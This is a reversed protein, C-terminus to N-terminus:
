RNLSAAFLSATTYEYYNCFRVASASKVGDQGPLGVQTEDNM